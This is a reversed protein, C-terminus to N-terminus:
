EGKAWPWAWNADVDNPDYARQANLSAQAYWAQFEDKPLITLKGKMKYHNTGCHQACGIDVERAETAQFWMRNIM